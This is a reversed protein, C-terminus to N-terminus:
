QFDTTEAIPGRSGMKFFNERVAHVHDVQILTNKPVDGLGASSSVNDEIRSANLCYGPGITVRVRPMIQYIARDHGATSSM